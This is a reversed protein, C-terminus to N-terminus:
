GYLRSYEAAVAAQYAEEAGQKMALLIEATDGRASGQSLWEERAERFELLEVASFPAEWQLAESLIRGQYSKLYSGGLLATATPALDIGEAIEKYVGPKVGAGSLVLPTHREVEAIGGHISVNHTQEWMVVDKFCVVYTGPGVHHGMTRLETPTFTRKVLGSGIWQQLQKDTPNLLTVTRGGPNPICDVGVTGFGRVAEKATVSGDVQGHDSTIFFTTKDLVGAERVTEALQEVERDVLELAKLAYESGAGYSHQLNDTAYFTVSLFAPRFTAFSWRAMQGCLNISHGFYEVSLYSFAGRLTQDAVSSTTLGAQKLAATIYRGNDNMRRLSECPDGITLGSGHSEPYSGTNISTHTSHTMTPFTTFCRRYYAGNKRLASIFPTNAQEFVSSSVGDLIVLIVHECDSEPFLPKRNLAPRDPTNLRQEVEAPLHM